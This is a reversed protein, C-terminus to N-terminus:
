RGRARGPRIRQGRNPVGAAVRKWGGDWVDYAVFELPIGRASYPDPGDMAQCHLHPETSNGSNGCEAVVQGATVRNGVAVRASRRRLHAFLLYTGDDLRLIVHNGFLRQAGAFSRVLQELMWLALGAVSDRSRHDRADDCVAVVEASCPAVVPQGFAYFAGPRRLRLRRLSYGDSSTQMRDDVAVFDFAFTQALAHTGHSPVRRAPTVVAHWQGHLPLRCRLPSTRDPRQRRALWSTAAVVALLSTVAAAFTPLWVYPLVLAAAVIVATAPRMGRSYTGPFRRLPDAPPGPVPLM